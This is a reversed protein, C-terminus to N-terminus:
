DVWSGELLEQNHISSRLRQTGLSSKSFSKNTPLVSWNLLLHVVRFYLPRYSILLLVKSVILVVRREVGRGVEWHVMAGINYARFILETDM